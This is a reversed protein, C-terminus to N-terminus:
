ADSVVRSGLNSVAQEYSLREAEATTESPVWEPFVIKEIVHRGSDTHIEHLQALRDLPFRDALRVLSPWLRRHVYTIRGAVLRCVLIDPTDRVARTVRFIDHNRPHTWWSGRIPAGAIKEALSPVPGKASELVVGHMRVFAIAQRPTM